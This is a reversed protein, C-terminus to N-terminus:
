NVEATLTGIFAVTCSRETWVGRHGRLEWTETRRSHFYVRGASIARTRRPAAIYIAHTCVHARQALSGRYYKGLGQTLLFFFFLTRVFM